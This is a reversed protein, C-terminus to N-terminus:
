ALLLALGSVAIASGGIRLLQGGRRRQDALGLFLGALHLCITSGIFGAAYGAVNAGAPLEAGHAYGHAVAFLAIMAGGAALPLQLGAVIAAGLVIVSLAIVPEVAPLAIGAFALAAGAVMAVPFLAPLMLAARQRLQAAWLGVALMALLHDIGTLPHLAGALFSAQEAHGPHALALGPSAAAVLALALRAVSRSIRRPNPHTM